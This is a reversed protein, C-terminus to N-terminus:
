PSIFERAKMEDDWEVEDDLVVYMVVPYITQDASFNSFLILIASVCHFVCIM